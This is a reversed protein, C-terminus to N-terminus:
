KPFCSRAALNVTTTVFRVSATASVAKGCSETTLTFVGANGSNALGQSVAYTQVQDQTGCVTTNVAACRAAREVAHQLGLQTWLMLGGQLAGFLLAFFAPATLAFEVATAGRQDAIFRAPRRM